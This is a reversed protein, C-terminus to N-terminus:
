EVRITFSGQGYLSSSSPSSVYIYYTTSAVAAFSLSESYGEWEDNRIAVCSAGSGGCSGSGIWILPDFDYGVPIVTAQYTRSAAPTFSYVVDPGRPKASSMAACAASM